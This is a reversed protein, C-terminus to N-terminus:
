FKIRFDIDDYSFTVRDRGSERFKDDNGLSNDKNFEYEFEENGIYTIQKSFSDYKFKVNGILAIKDSFFDYKIEANGIKAIRETHFDYEFVKDGIKAIRKSHFDYNIVLEGIKSINKTFFDYEIKCGELRTIRGKEMLNDTSELRLESDDCYNNRNNSIKKINGMKDLVISSRNIFVKVLFNGKLDTTVALHQAYATTGIFMILLAFIYKKM